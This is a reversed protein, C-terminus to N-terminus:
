SAPEVRFGVDSRRGRTFTATQARAVWRGPLASAGAALFRRFLDSVEGCSLNSGRLPILTYRGAPFRLPGVVDDHLVRFSGPCPPGDGRVAPRTQRNPAPAAVPEVRFGHHVSGRLFSATEPDVFWRGPLNGDYDQLFRAFLRTARACSLRGASLLTITYQGAPLVLRGVRDDHLVRFTAPCRGDFPTPAPAPTPAPSPTPTAPAVSFSQGRRSFSSRRANVSWGDFLNGDFDQLFQRFLSAAQSCSLSGPTDVTVAYTGAALQLQGIRDDHLVRFTPCPAATSQAAAPAALSLLAAATLAATTALRLV